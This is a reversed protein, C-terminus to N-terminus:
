GCPIAVRVQVTTGEGPLSLIVLEGQLSEVRERMTNLGMGGRDKVAELDFGQGDDVVELELAGRHVRISVAVASARAHKLTNNLAEQAIRFLEEGIPAPLDLEGDVVLRAEVGARREVGELRHQISRVLGEKTLPLPRLEYVLLRMEQLAQQAIESLRAQNKQIQQLDGVQVMRQGAEALLTLSYISQTVSDHLDRALRQREEL